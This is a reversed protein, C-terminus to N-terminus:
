KDKRGELVNDNMTIRMINNDFSVQMEDTYTLGLVQDSKQAMLEDNLFLKGEFAQLRIIPDDIGLQTLVAEQEFRYKGLHANYHEARALARTDPVAVTQGLSLRYLDGLMRLIPTNGWNSTIAVFRDSTSSQIMVSKSGYGSGAAFYLTDDGAKKISWAYGEYETESSKVHQKFLLKTSAESLLEKNKLASVFVHLDSPTSYLGGGANDGMHKSRQASEIGHRSFRYPVAQNEIVQRSHYVGTNKLGLPAIILSTIVNAYDDQTVREIIAGLLVIGANSYEYREGPTFLLPLDNIYHKIQQEFSLAEHAQVGSERPLGSTHTLLHHVTVKDKWEATLSPLYEGVSAHLNVKNEENLMLVAVATFTKSISNISNRTEPTNPIAFSRNAQGYSKEFIGGNLGVVKVTGSFGYVGHYANLLEDYKNLGSETAITTTSVFIGQLLLWLLITSKYRM